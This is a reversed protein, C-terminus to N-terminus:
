VKNKESSARESLRKSRRLVPTKPLAANEVFKLVDPSFTVHRKKTPAASTSPGPEEKEVADKMKSAEALEIKKKKLFEIYSIVPPDNDWNEVSEEAKEGTEGIGKEAKEALQLLEREQSLLLDEPSPSAIDDFGTSNVLYGAAFSVPFNLNCNKDYFLTMELKGGAGDFSFDDLSATFFSFFSIKLSKQLKREKKGQEMPVIMSEPLSASNSTSQEEFHPEDFILISSIDM